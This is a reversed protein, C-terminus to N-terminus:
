LPCAVSSARPRMWSLTVKYFKAEMCTPHLRADSTFSFLPKEHSTTFKVWVDYFLYYVYRTSYEQLVEDSEFNNEDEDESETPGLLDCDVPRPPLMAMRAAAEGLSKMNRIHQSLSLEIGEM